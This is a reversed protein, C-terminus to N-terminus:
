AVLESHSDWASIASNNWFVNPGDVLMKPVDKGLTFQERLCSDPFEPCNSGLPFSFGHALNLLVVEFGARWVVGRRGADGM